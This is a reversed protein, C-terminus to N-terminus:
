FSSSGSKSKAAEAIIEDTEEAYKEDSLNVHADVSRMQVM